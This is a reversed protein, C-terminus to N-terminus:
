RVYSPAEVVELGAINNVPVELPYTIAGLRTEDGCQCGALVVNKHIIGTMRTECIKAESHDSLVRIGDPTGLGLATVGHSPSCWFGQALPSVALFRVSESECHDHNLHM